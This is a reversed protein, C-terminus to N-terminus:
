FCTCTVYLLLPLCVKLVVPVPSKEMEAALLKTLDSIMPEEKEATEEALKAVTANYEEVARYYMSLITSFLSDPKYGLYVSEASIQSALGFMMLTHEPHYGSAEEEGEQTKISSRWAELANKQVVDLGDESMMTKLNSIIREFVKHRESFASKLSSSHQRVAEENFTM